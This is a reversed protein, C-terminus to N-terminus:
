FFSFFSMYSGGGKPPKVIVKLRLEAKWREDKCSWWWSLTVGVRLAMSILGKLVLLTSGEGGAGKQCKSESM